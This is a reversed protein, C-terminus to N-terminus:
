LEDVLYRADDVDLWEGFGHEDEYKMKGDIAGTVIGGDVPVWSSKPGPFRVNHPRKPARALASTKIKCWIVVNRRHLAHELEVPTLSVYSRSM